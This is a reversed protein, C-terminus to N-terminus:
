HDLMRQMDTFVQQFTSTATGNHILDTDDMYTYCAFHYSEDNLVNTSTFGFGQTRLM